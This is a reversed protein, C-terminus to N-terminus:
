CLLLWRMAICVVCEGAFYIRSNDLEESGIRQADFERREVTVSTFNPRFM